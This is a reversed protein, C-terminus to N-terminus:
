GNILLHFLRDWKRVMSGLNRVCGLQRAVEVTSAAALLLLLRLWTRGGGQSIAASCCTDGGVLM